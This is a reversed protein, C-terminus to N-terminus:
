APAVGASLLSQLTIDELFSIEIRISVIRGPEAGTDHHALCTCLNTMAAHGGRTLELCASVMSAYLDVIARLQIELRFETMSPSLARRDLVWGGSEAIASTLIPLLVRREEYSFCQIPVSQMVHTPRRRSSRDASLRNMPSETRFRSTEPAGHDCSLPTMKGTVEWRVASAPNM